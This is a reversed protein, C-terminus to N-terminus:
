NLSQDILQSLRAVESAANTFSSEDLDDLISKDNNFDFGSIDDINFNDDDSNLLNPIAMSQRSTSVYFHPITKDNLLKIGLVKIFRAADDYAVKIASHIANDDPWIRLIDISENPISNPNFDFVYGLLIYNNIIYLYM